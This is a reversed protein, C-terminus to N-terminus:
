GLNRVQELDLDLAVVLDLGFILVLDLDLAVVLVLVLWHVQELRFDLQDPDQREIGKQPM